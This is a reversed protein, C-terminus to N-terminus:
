AITTSSGPEAPSAMNIPSPCYSKISDRQAIIGGLTMILYVDPPRPLAAQKEILAGAEGIPNPVIASAPVMM